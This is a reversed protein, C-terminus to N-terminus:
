RGVAFRAFASNIKLWALVDAPEESGAKKQSNRVLVHVRDRGRSRVNSKAAPLPSRKPIILFLLGRTGIMRIVVYGSNDLPLNCQRARRQALRDLKGLEAV